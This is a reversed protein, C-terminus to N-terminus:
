GPGPDLRELRRRVLLALGAVGDAAGDAPSIAGLWPLGDGRRRDPCWAGGVQILGLLPVGAQQLLATAGAAVGSELQDAAILLLVPQRWAALAEAWCGGAALPRGADLALPVLATGGRCAFAALVPTPDEGALPPGLPVALAAALAPGVAALRAAVAADTGCATLLVSVPLGTAPLGTAPLGTPSAKSRNM